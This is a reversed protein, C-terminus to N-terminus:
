VSQDGPHHKGAKCSDALACGGCGGCGSSCASGNKKDRIIKAIAGALAAAILAMIIISAINDILFTLM